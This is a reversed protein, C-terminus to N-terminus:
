ITEQRFPIILRFKGTNPDNPIDNVINIEYRVFHILKRITLIADMRKKINLIATDRDGTIIVNLRLKNQEIQIVQLQELGVAIFEVFVIPHLFQKNGAPDIFILFEEKRGSITRILPFPWGCPCKKEELILNDGTRYRILPQTDNYLTTLVLNGAEGRGAPEGNPKIVEFIHWDNFMHLGEHFDCEAAMVISETAAYFNTPKVGFAKSEGYQGNAPRCFM